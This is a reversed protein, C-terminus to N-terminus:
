NLIHPTQPAFGGSFINRSKPTKKVIKVLFNISYNGGAINYFHTITSLLFGQSKKFVFLASPFKIKGEPYLFFSNQLTADRLRFHWFMLTFRGCLTWKLWLRFFEFCIREIKVGMIIMWRMLGTLSNTSTRSKWTNEKM